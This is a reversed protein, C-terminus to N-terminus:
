FNRPATITRRTPAPQVWCRVLDPGDANAERVLKLDQASAAPPDFHLAGRTPAWARGLGGDKYFSAAGPTLEMEYLPPGSPEIAIIGKVLTPRDNAIVWGFPGSQSHTLLVAPGIKDLLAAGADRNLQEIMGVDNIDEVQSAFFQDLDSRGGCGFGAVAAAALLRYLLSRPM